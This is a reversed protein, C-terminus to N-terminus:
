EFAAGAELGGHLKAVLAKHEQDTPDLELARNWQYGAERHRDLKWYVDGLHSVITASSPSQEAADELRIRAKGYQGMKYHAWGLSDIFAGTEPELSVAKRIMTFAQGLKVGKDVWTYGLYNLADANQPENALVFELDVVAEQWRDLRELCISRLYRAQPNVKQETESMGNILAEYYPLAKAYDEQILYARGLADQTIKSPAQKDIKNLIALGKLPEERDFWVNAESLRTSVAYASGDKIRGYQALAEDTREVDELVSGLFLRAKDNAPDLILALRLFMEVAEYQKQAGFYGFAPETLARSAMQAPSHTINLTEGAELRNIYEYVPGSLVTGSKKGFQKLRALAKDPNGQSDHYRAQSLTSEVSSIGVTDVALFAMNAKATEGQAAFLKANQLQGMLEFYRGGSLTEFTKEAMKVDGLGVYAWGRILSQLAGAGGQPSATIKTTDRIGNPAPTEGASESVEGGLYRVAQAYDKNVFAKIGLITRALGDQDNLHYIEIALTQALDQDDANLASAMATRGLSLDGARRGFARSYYTSRAEADGLHHAYSAALYDGYLQASPSLSNGNLGTYKGGPSACTSLLFAACAGVLLTKGIFVSKLTAM